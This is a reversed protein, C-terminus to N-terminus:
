KRRSYDVLQDRGVRGVAFYRSQPHGFYPGAVSAGPLMPGHETLSVGTEDARLLAFLKRKESHDPCAPYGFAPPIARYTEAV